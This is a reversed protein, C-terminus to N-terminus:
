RSEGGNGSLAAFNRTTGSAFIDYWGGVYLGPVSIEAYRDRIGVRRWYGDRSRHELWRLYYPALQSVLPLEAPDLRDWATRLDDVVERLEAVLGHLPAVEAALWPLLWSVMFAWQLVGGSYVWGDYIDAPAIVPVICRLHPPRAIAALLVCAGDYSSGIAGVRGNSWSQEACWEVSDYGDDVEQFFPEFTGGGSSRGRVDQVVTVYGMDAARLPDLLLYAIPPRSKGYATRHLIVPRPAEIAPRFVDCYTTTGDRLVIALNREVILETDAM